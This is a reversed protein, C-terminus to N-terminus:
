LRRPWWKCTLLLGLAIGVHDIGVDTLSGTREEVFQQLFETAFGHLSLGVILLWRWRGRVPLWVILASLFAYSGVHLLKASLFHGEPPIVAEQVHVPFTTLLATTWAAFYGGWVLWRWLPRVKPSPAAEPQFQGTWDRASATPKADQEDRIQM